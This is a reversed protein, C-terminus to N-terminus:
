PKTLVGVDTSSSEHADMHELRFKKWVDLLYLHSPHRLDDFLLTGGDSLMPWTLKLDRTADEKNHAGDVLILDFKGKVKPLATESREQFTVYDIDKLLPEVHSFDKLHPTHGFSDILTVHKLKTNELVVKLSDGENVGIELYRTKNKSNHKLVSYLTKM